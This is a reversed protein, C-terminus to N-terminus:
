CCFILKSFYSDFSKDTVLPKVNTDFRMIQNMPNFGNTCKIFNTKNIQKNIDMTHDFEHQYTSRQNSHNVLKMENLPLSASVNQYSVSTTTSKSSTSSQYNLASNTTSCASSSSNLDKIKDLNAVVVLQELDLLLTHAHLASYM